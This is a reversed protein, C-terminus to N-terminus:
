TNRERLEREAQLWDDMDRGDECGRDCYIEYARRAIAGPEPHREGAGQSGRPENEMVGVSARDEATGQQVEGEFPRPQQERRATRKAM